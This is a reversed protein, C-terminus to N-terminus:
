RLEEKMYNAIARAHEGRGESFADYLIRSSKNLVDRPKVDLSQCMLLFAMALAGIQHGKPADQLTNIVRFSLEQCRQSTMMNLQDIM